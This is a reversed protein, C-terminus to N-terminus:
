AQLDIGMGLKHGGQNFNKGDIQANLTFAIGPRLQRILALGIMNKNNIRAKIQTDEDMRYLCGISFIPANNGASCSLSIASELSSNIKQYLSGLFEKGDSVNTHVQFDKDQYGVSFNTKNLKAQHPNFSLQAGALWGQHGLVVSGHMITGNNLSDFDFDATSNFYDGKLSTKIAGSKKGSQPAVNANFLVKSGKILQNEFSLESLITNDTTWKEKFTCGWDRFFYKTEFAANVRGTDNVSVGNVAFEVNNKTKTKVDLKVLGFNYNKSFIDRAQKGLDAYSPPAM